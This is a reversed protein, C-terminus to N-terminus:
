HRAGILSNCHWKQKKVTFGFLHLFLPFFRKIGKLVHLSNGQKLDWIRVTGDEYGVVARKGAHIMKGNTVRQVLRVVLWFARGLMFSRFMWWDVDCMAVSSTRPLVLDWWTEKWQRLLLNALWGGSWALGGWDGSRVMLFSVVVLLQAAQDKSPRANEVPSRGCGPTAMLLALLSFM